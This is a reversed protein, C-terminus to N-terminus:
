KMSPVIARYYANDQKAAEQAAEQASVQTSGGKISNLSRKDLERSINGTKQFKIKKM